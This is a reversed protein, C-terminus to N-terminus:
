QVNLWSEYFATTEYYSELRHTLVPMQKATYKALRWRLNAPTNLM